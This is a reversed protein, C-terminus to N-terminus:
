GANALKYLHHLGNRTHVSNHCQFMILAKAPGNNGPGGLRSQPTSKQTMLEESTM